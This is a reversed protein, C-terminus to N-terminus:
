ARVWRHLAGGDEDLTLWSGDGLARPHGRVPRPYAIPGLPRLTLADLLWHEGDERSRRGAATLVTYPDLFGALLDWPEGLAGRAMVTAGDPFRHLLLDGSGHPATLFALGSPHVDSVVRFGDGLPHATLGTGDWHGLYLPSGDQGQGIGLLMRGGDPHPIQYSGATCGEIRARGLPRGDALGLVVWEEHSDVAPDGHDIDPLVHAWVTQGDVGVRCSGNDRGPCPAPGEHRHRGEGWCGHRYEWRLRGARDVARVSRQGCLVLLGGDPSVAHVGGSWGPWPNPVTSEPATDGAFVRDLDYVALLDGDRLVARRPGPGLTLAHGGTVARADPLVATALLRAGIPM